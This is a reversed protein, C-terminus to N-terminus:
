PLVPLKKKVNEAQWLHRREHAMMWALVGSLRFKTFLGRFPPKVGLKALDLGDSDKLLRAWEDQYRVFESVVVAPDGIQVPPAINPPAPIRFKPPPEAIWTFMSGWGGPKFPGQGAVKAQEGRQIEKEILPQMVRATQNLHALCEAISWKAPDPRQALQAPTLGSTLQEAKARIARLEDNLQPITIM